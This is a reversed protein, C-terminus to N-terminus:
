YKWKIENNLVPYHGSYKLLPPLLNKWNKFFTQKKEYMRLKNYTNDIGRQDATIWSSEHNLEGFHRQNSPSASWLDGLNKREWNTLVYLNSFGHVKCEEEENFREYFNEFGPCQDIIKRYKVNCVDPLNCTFTGKFIGWAWFPPWHTVCLEAVEMFLEEDFHHPTIIDRINEFWIDGRDVNVYNWVIEKFTTLVHEDYEGYEEDVKNKNKNGYMEINEKFMRMMVDVLNYFDDVTAVESYLKCVAKIRTATKSPNNKSEFFLDIKEMSDDDWSERQRSEASLLEAVKWKLALPLSQTWNPAHYILETLDVGSGNSENINERQLWDTIQELSNELEEKSIEFENEEEESKNDSGEDSGSDSESDSEDQSGDESGDDSGDQSGDQSEDDDNGDEVLQRKRGGHVIHTQRINHNPKTAENPAEVMLEGEEHEGEDEGEDEEEKDNGTTKGKKQKKRKPEDVETESEDRKRKRCKGNKCRSQQSNSAQSKSNSTKSNSKSTRSSSSNTSSSSSNTQNSQKPSATKSPNSAKGKQLLMKNKAKQICEILLQEDVTEQAEEKDKIVIIQNQFEASTALWIHKNDIYDWRKNGIIQFFKFYTEDNKILLFIWNLGKMTKANWEINPDGAIKFKETMKSDTILFVMIRRIFPWLGKKQSCYTTSKPLLVNIYEEIVDKFEKKKLEEWLIKIDEDDNLKNYKKNQKIEEMLDVDNPWELCDSIVYLQNLLNAAEYVFRYVPFNKHGFYFKYIFSKCFEMLQENFIGDDEVTFGISRLCLIGKKLLSDVASQHTSQANISSLHQLFQSALEQKPVSDKSNVNHNQHHSEIEQQIDNFQFIPFKSEQEEKRQDNGYNHNHNKGKSRKRVSM